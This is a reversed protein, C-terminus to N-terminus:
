ELVEIIMDKNGGFKEKWDQRGKMWSLNVKIFAKAERRVSAGHFADGALLFEVMNARGLSKVM